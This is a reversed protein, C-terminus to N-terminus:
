MMQLLSQMTGISDDENWISGLVGVGDAGAQLVSNLTLASIGGLAVVPCRAQSCLKQLAKVGLPSRVPQKSITSSVPSFFLYDAGSAEAQLAEAISHASYGVFGKTGIIEKASSIPLSRAGLHVGDAGVIRAIEARRHIILRAQFKRAICVTQEALSVFQADSLSTKRLHIQGIQGSAASLVEELISVSNKAFGQESDDSILM